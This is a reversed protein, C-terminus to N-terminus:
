FLAFNELSLFEYRSILTKVGAALSNKIEYVLDFKHVAGVYYRNAFEDVKNSIYLEDSFYHGM